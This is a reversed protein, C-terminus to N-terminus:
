YEVLHSVMWGIGAIRFNRFDDWGEPFFLSSVRKKVAEPPNRPSVRGGQGAM